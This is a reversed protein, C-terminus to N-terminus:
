PLKSFYKIVSPIESEMALDKVSKGESNVISYDAGAEIFMKSLSLIKNKYTYKMITHFATNGEFDQVDTEAGQILASKILYVPASQSLYMLFTDKIPVDSRKNNVYRYCNVDLGLDICQEIIKWRGWAGLEFVAPYGNVLSNPDAGQELLEKPLKADGNAVSTTFAFTPDIKGILSKVSKGSKKKGNSFGRIYTENGAVGSSFCEFFALEISPKSLNKILLDFDEFDRGDLVGSLLNDIKKVTLVSIGQDYINEGYLRESIKAANDIDSNKAYKFSSYIDDIETDESFKCCFNFTAEGM